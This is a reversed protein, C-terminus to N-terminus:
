LVGQIVNKHWEVYQQQLTVNGIMYFFVFFTNLDAHQSSFLIPYNCDPVFPSDRIEQGISEYSIYCSFPCPNHSVRYIFFLAESLLMSTYRGAGKSSILASRNVSWGVSWSVSRGVRRAVSRGFLPRVSPIM